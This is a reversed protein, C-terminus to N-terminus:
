LDNRLEGYHFCELKNRSVVFLELHTDYAKEKDLM